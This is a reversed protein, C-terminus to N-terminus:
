KEQFFFFFGVDGSNNPGARKNIKPNESRAGFFGSCHLVYRLIRFEINENEINNKFSSTSVFCFSKPQSYSNFMLIPFVNALYLFTFLFYLLSKLDFSSM